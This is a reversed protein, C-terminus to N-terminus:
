LKVAAGKADSAMCADLIRQVAAGRAFDPQDGRGRRISRIFRQYITPTPPCAITKWAHRNVDRGRCIDLQTYSKDLDIRIAGADGFIRLQLSNAYGTAWRSTHVAGLAGNAMELTIVASDNADLPYKGIRNGKAKPFNKLRCHVSAVEGIPYTALDLIHVGIDGLTGKCGNRSSLRWLFGESTRWDGWTNSVLWSQLYSADFHMVRGIAGDRLLRAAKHIASANRYSLNVMNVVGKKRAAEAMRHADAYHTALPKECLVHKGAAICALSLPAHAPDSAVISVADCPVSGLLDNVDTFAWRAPIGWRRAFDRARDPQIDVAAVLKCGRIDRFSKAHAHAMGGTGVIAIRIVNHGKM